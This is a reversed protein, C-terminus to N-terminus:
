LAGIHRSMWRTFALTQCGAMAVGMAAALCM